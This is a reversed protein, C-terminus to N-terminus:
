RPLSNISQLIKETDMEHVEFRQGIKKLLTITLLGGLHERFEELGALTANKEDDTTQELEPAYTPLKLKTILSLIRDVSASDLYGMEQSYLTDIAIGIAVAEGHSIRFDSLQELKHAAWHGFDLPRVSGMEFPDGSTAIHTVHHQASRHVLERVASPEFANLADAQSEIWDFFTADRILAVKIAEIYGNRLHQEPLTELFSFDNVVAYPPAFTGVFNKKRHFNFGNKVGVGADGQGLTTTPFRIHRIGRHATAAAFGVTDLLAGGGIAILYSHRCIKQDEIQAYIKKLYDTENKIPEGAPLLHIGRLNLDEDHHQFYSEIQPVLSPNAAAVGEDLYFIAKRRSGSEKSCLLNFLLSNDIAFAHETFLVRLQYPIAISHEIHPFNIM